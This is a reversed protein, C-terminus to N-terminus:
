DATRGRKVADIIRVTEVAKKVNHARIIHAGNMVGAAVAAMSGTDREHPERDLIHGIFAKNSPGLLVPRELSKFRSLDRIIKLNHDFTKGFGIGPDVVTLKRSIGAAEARDVADKLFDLIENILDDYVPNKQMDGPTGKMHMLIVPVGAQAAIQAMEPDFRLASIDNIISAGAKLAEEAVTSKCTDISIPASIEGQLAEIVPIVRDIEEAISIKKSYPRTSEGGIDIIDAGDRDMLLAHEVARDAEFYHGGDSFSDPTINLVGMVHTRISLDLRHAKWSLTFGM